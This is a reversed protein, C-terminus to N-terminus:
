LVLCHMCIVKLLQVDDSLFTVCFKDEELDNDSSGYSTDQYLNYM